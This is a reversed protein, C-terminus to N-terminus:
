RMGTEPVHASGQRDCWRQWMQRYVHELAQTFPAGDCPPSRSLRERLGARLAALHPVDAALGAAIRGYAEPGDAILEGLGVCSLVSAVMRGAYLRGRLTVVPVGQGLAECATTHGSWPFSDLAIDVEEYLRLHQGGVASVRRLDLREPVLDHPLFAWQCGTRNLYRLTNVVERLNVERPPGPRVRNEFALLLPELIAWQADSIDSPYPKRAAAAM